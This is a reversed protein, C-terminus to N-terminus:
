RREEAEADGHDHQRQHGGRRDARAARGRVLFLQDDAAQRGRLRPVGLAARRRHFPRRRRHGHGDGARGRRQGQRRVGAGQTRVTRVIRQGDTLSFVLRIQHAVVEQGAEWECEFPAAAITCAQRGDVFFTVSDVALTPDVTARLSTTGGVYSDPEPSVIRVATADASRQPPVQEPPPSQAHAQGGLLGIAVTLLVARRATPM